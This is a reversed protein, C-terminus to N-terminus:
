TAAFSALTMHPSSFHAVSRPMFITGAPASAVVDVHCADGRRRVTVAADAERDM